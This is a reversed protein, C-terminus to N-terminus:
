WLRGGGCSGRGGPLRAAAPNPRRQGRVGAHLRAVHLPLVLALVDAANALLGELHAAYEPEVDVISVHGNRLVYLLKSAQFGPQHQVVAGDATLRDCM